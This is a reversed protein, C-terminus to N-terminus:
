AELMWWKESLMPIENVIMEIKLSQSVLEVVIGLM